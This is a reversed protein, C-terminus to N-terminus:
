QGDLGLNQPDVLSLFRNQKCFAYLASLCKESKLRYISDTEVIPFFRLDACHSEVYKRIFNTTCFWGSDYSECVSFDASPM